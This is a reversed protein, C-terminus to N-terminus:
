ATRSPRGTTSVSQRAPVPTSDTTSASAWSTNNRHADPAVGGRSPHRGTGQLEIEIEGAVTRAHRANGAPADAIGIDKEFWEPKAVLRGPDRGRENLGTRAPEITTLLEALTDCE